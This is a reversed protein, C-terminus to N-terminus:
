MDYCPICSVRPTFVSYCHVGCFNKVAIILSKFFVVDLDVVCDYNIRLVFWSMSKPPKILAQSEVFVTFVHINLHMIEICQKIVPHNILAHTKKKIKLM